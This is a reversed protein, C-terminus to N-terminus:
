GRRGCRIPRRRPDARSRRRDPGRSRASVGRMQRGSTSRRIIACISRARSAPSVIPPVKSDDGVVHRGAQAAVHVPVALEVAAQRPRQHRDAILATPMPRPGATAPTGPECTWSSITALAALAGPRGPTLWRGVVGASEFAADGVALVEPHRGVHFRDRRQHLREARDVERCHDFGAAISRLSTQATGASAGRADEVTVEGVDKACPCLEISSSTVFQFAKWFRVAARNM